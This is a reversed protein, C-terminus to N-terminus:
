DQDITAPIYSNETKSHRIYAGRRRYNKTYKGIGNQCSRRCHMIHELLALSGLKGLGLNGLGLKSRGFKDVGARAAATLRFIDADDSAAANGEPQAASLQLKGVSTIIPAESKVKAGLNGLVPTKLRLNQM